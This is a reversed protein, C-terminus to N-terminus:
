IRNQIPLSDAVDDKRWDKDVKNRTYRHCKSWDEGLSGLTDM